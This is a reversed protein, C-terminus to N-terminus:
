ASPLPMWKKVTINENLGTLIAYCDWYEGNWWGECVNGKIRSMKGKFNIIVMQYKKPKKDKVDIWEM